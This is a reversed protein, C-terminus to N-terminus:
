RPINSQTTISGGKMVSDTQLNYASVTDDSSREPLTLEQMSKFQRHHHIQLLPFNDQRRCCFIFVQHVIKKSDFFDLELRANRMQHVLVIEIHIKRSRM